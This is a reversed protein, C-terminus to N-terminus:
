SSASYLDINVKVKVKGSNELPFVAWSVFVHMWSVTCGVHWHLRTYFFTAIESWYRGLEYVTSSLHTYAAIRKVLM